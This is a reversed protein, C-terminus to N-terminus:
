DLYIMEFQGERKFVKLRNLKFEYRGVELERAFIGASSRVTSKIFNIAFADKWTKAKDAVLVAIRGDVYIEVFVRPHNKFKM